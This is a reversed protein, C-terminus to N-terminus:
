PIFACLTISPYSVTNVGVSCIRVNVTSALNTQECSLTLATTGLEAGSPYAFCPGGSVTTGFAANGIAFTSCGSGGNTGTLAVPACASRSQYTKGAIDVSFKTVGANRVEYLNGATVAGATDVAVSPATGAPGVLKLTGGSSICGGGGCTAANLLGGTLALQRYGLQMFLSGGNRFDIFGSGVGLGGSVADFTYSPTSTVSKFSIATGCAGTGSTACGFFGGTWPAFQTAWLTGVNAFGAQQTTPTGSGLAVGGGGGGGRGPRVQARAVDILSALLLAAVTASSGALVATFFLRHM